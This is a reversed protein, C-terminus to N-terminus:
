IVLEQAIGKSYGNVDSDIRDVSNRYPQLKAGCTCKLSTEIIIDDADSLM